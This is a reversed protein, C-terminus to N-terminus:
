EYRLASVPDLRTAKRAPWFTAAISVVILLTGISSLTVADRATSQVLISSLLRGVGFGGGIGLTLGIVLQVIAGRLVLWWVQQAQAGLAMRVGIEQTRQSVSYATVAYLGVASLALAIMAFIAFMSGIVKFMYRNQALSEDLTQIGFLPLDPDIARVEERVVPTLAAPDGTARVLLSAFATAASRLPIYVIPDPLIEQFNRQRVNPVVGVITVVTPPTSPQAGPGTEPTLRIRRGIPDENPFHMAVFRQNVIASDHGATGDLENFDRGRFLRLGLTEFFRPGILMHSVIPAQEGDGLQGGEITLQRTGAGTMPPNTTITAAQVNSLVALREDLRKYFDRRQEPTPYKRNPLQLRMTLLRSTEVGVDRQYLTMFSRM